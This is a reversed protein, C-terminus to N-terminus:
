RLVIESDKSFINRFYRFLYPFVNKQWNIACPQLYNPIHLVWQHRLLIPAFLIYTLPMTSNFFPLYKVLSVFISIGVVQKCLKKFNDLYTWDVNLSNFFHTSGLWFFKWADGNLLLFQFLNHLQINKSNIVPQKLSM